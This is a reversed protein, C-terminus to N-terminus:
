DNVGSGGDFDECEKAPPVGAAMIGALHRREKAAAGNASFTQLPTESGFFYARPNKANTSPIL